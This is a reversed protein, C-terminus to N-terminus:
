LKSNKYRNKDPDNCIFLNLKTSDFTLLFTKYPEIYLGEIYNEHIKKYLEPELTSFNRELFERDLNFWRTPGKYQGKFKDSNRRCITVVAEKMDELKETGKDVEESTTINETGKHVEDTGKDVEESTTIKETRKHVENSTTVKETTFLKNESLSTTVVAEKKDDLFNTDKDVLSM